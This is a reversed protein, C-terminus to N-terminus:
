IISNGEWEMEPDMGMIKAITPAIDLLSLEKTIEGTHFEKGFFFLPVTMDEPMESGHSRDHGGHDSMIIVSYEEGFKDVVRKVNDIAVSIRHLYEKSMWGNDHGSEDPEAMYLFVFDPHNEEINCIAEDTLATDSSEKMHTNIYTSFRLSGPSAIDRLPEWGYFMSSVGGFAKIKEFIGLVPRVQPVYTNTLIGHRQPTVSHTMSFHCPLTVSPNMARASYTYACIRELEKVYPNGCMKLGDPRMGDISILIVKNKM